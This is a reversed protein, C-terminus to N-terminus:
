TRPPFLRARDSKGAALADEGEPTLQIYKQNTDGKDWGVIALNPNQKQWLTKFADGLTAAEKPPLKNPVEIGKLRQFEQAIQQGIFENGRQKAVPVSKPKGEIPPEVSAEAEEVSGFEVDVDGVQGGAALQFIANETVISGAIALESDLKPHIPNTNDVAGIRNVAARINGEHEEVYSDAIQEGTAGEKVADYAPGHALSLAPMIGQTEVSSALGKARTGIGGDASSTSTAAFIPSTPQVNAWRERLNPVTQRAQEQLVGQFEEAPTVEGPAEPLVDQTFGEADTAPARLSQSPDGAPPGAQGAAKINGILSGTNPAAEVEPAPATPLEINGLEGAQAEKVTNVTSIRAM